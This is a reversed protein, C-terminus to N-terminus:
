VGEESVSARLVTKISIDNFPMHSCIPINALPMTTTM